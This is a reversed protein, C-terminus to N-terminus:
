KEPKCKIKKIEERTLLEGSWTNTNFWQKKVEPIAEALWRENDYIIISKRGKTVLKSLGILRLKGSKMIDMDTATKITCGSIFGRKRAESILYSQWQDIMNLSELVDNFDGKCLTYLNSVFRPLNFIFKSQEPTFKKKAEVEKVEYKKGDIEIINSKSTM